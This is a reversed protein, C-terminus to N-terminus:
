IVFKVGKVNYEKPPNVIRYFLGYDADRLITKWIIERKKPTDGFIESSNAFLSSFMTGGLRTNTIIQRLKFDKEGYYNDKKSLIYSLFMNYIYEQIDKPVGLEKELTNM